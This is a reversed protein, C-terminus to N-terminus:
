SIDDGAHPKSGAAIAHYQDPSESDESSVVEVTLKWPESMLSNEVVDPCHCVTLKRLSDCVVRPSRNITDGYNLIHLCLM